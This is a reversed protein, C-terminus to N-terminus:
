INKKLRDRFKIDLYWYENSNIMNTLIHKTDFGTQQIGTLPRTICLKSHWLSCFQSTKAVRHIQKGDWACVCFLYVENELIPTICLLWSVCPVAIFDKRTNAVVYTLHFMYNICNQYLLIVLLSFLVKASNSVSLNHYELEKFLVCNNLRSFFWNFQETASEQLLQLM